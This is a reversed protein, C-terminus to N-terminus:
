GVTGSAFGIFWGHPSVQRVLWGKTGAAQLLVPKASSTSHLNLTDRQIIFCEYVYYYQLDGITPSLTLNIM